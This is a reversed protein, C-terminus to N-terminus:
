DDMGVAAEVIDLAAADADLMARAGVPITCNHEVHGFPLDAVTPVGLREAFDTLVDVIPHSDDSVATFRGFALGKVGETVGARELQLLMRDVRYAPEGIDELFLIRGRASVSWQTGCLAALLALNGGILPAEVRGGVLPRAEPDGERMPLRGAPEDVFLAKRFSAETEAPFDGGPHPGHFSITGLQAHRAHLTSNDSFGIFPIPEDRQRQLDLRDFIRLTGYGGRLAWVADISLDDFASQLDGLRESDTGALFRYRAAAAPFVVPELGLALCRAVSAEIREPAIPGAPAVLAVSSGTRLAKPKRIRM